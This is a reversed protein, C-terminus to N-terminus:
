AGAGRPMKITAEVKGYEFNFSDLTDIKGSTYDYILEKKDRPYVYSERHAEIVLGVGPEIRVNRPDTTYGQYEQNYSPTKPDTDYRWVRRDPAVATTSLFDQSWSPTSEFEPAQPQRFVETVQYVGVMGLLTGAGILAGTLLSRRSLEPTSEPNKKHKDM